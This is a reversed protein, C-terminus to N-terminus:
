LFTSNSDVWLGFGKALRFYRYGEGHRLKHVSPFLRRRFNHTRSWSSSVRNSPRLSKFGRKMKAFSTVAFKAVDSNSGAPILVSPPKLASTVMLKAMCSFNVSDTVSQRKTLTVKM